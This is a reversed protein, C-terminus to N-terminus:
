RNGGCPDTEDQRNVASVDVWFPELDVAIQRGGSLGRRGLVTRRRRRDGRRWCWGRCACKRRIRCRRRCHFLHQGLVPAHSFFVLPESSFDDPLRDLGCDLRFASGNSWCLPLGAIQAKGREPPLPRLRDLVLDDFYRVLQPKKSFLRTHNTHTQLTPRGLSIRAVPPVIRCPKAEEATGKCGGPCANVRIRHLDRV